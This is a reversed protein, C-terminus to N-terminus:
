KTNCEELRFILFLVIYTFGFLFAFISYIVRGVIEINKNCTWSLFAAYISIIFSLVFTLYDYYNLEDEKCTLCYVIPEM